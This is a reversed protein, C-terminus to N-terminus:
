ASAMQRAKQILEIVKISSDVSAVQPKNTDVQKSFALLLEQYMINKDWGDNRHIFKKAFKTQEEISDDLLNWFINAKSGIIRCTRSPCKQIMNLHINLIVGDRSELTLDVLDEVDLDLEKSKRLKSNLIKLEGFLECAYDLEHSLELLVGGGLSNQASVSNKYNKDPRWDPLYQGVEIFVNYIEGIDGDRVIKKIVNFSPLFRLQYAVGSQLSSTETAFKIKKAFEVTQALPKEILCPVGSELLTIAHECHLTVPSAVIAFKFDPVSILDLSQILQDCFPVDENVVRGSASLAFVKSNPFLAKINQRHRIAINGLGIVLYNEM